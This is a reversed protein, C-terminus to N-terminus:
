ICILYSYFTIIIHLTYSRTKHQENAMNIHVMPGTSEATLTFIKQETCCNQQELTEINNIRVRIQHELVMVVRRNIETINNLPTGNIPKPSKSLVM